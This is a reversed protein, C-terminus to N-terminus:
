TTKITSRWGGLPLWLQGSEDLAQADYGKSILTQAFETAYGHTTIIKSPNVLKVFELLENYDSHGSLPFAADVNYAYIVGKEVAWGTIAATRIQGCNLLSQAERASPPFLIIKGKARKASFKEYTPFKIGFERYVANIKHIQNHVLVPLNADKIAFLIDQSKGLSYALLVPIQKCLIAEKCFEIIKDVTEEIPPFSYEPKGFTTEMILIDAKEPACKEATLTSSLKFDGTYLITKDGVELKLMASGLIHGAPLLTVAYRKDKYEFSQKKNYDLCHELRKGSKRIKLFRSTAPTLIIEPHPSIHDAHAHSVFVIEGEGVVARSDLWLGIEPLHIGNETKKITLEM